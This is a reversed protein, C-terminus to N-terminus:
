EWNEVKNFNSYVDAAYKGIGIADAEDDTVTVDYNNKVILQMSRKQDVRSRGKVGCHHRWTNTPCVQYPIKEWFLTEMLIGQLRALTQFVTIGMNRGSSSEQFQIGELAVLDPQWNRLTQILWTKIASDRAIEDSLSTTFTGWQVLKNNDFISFGTVKTAQDIALIRYTGKKKPIIQKTIDNFRNDKCIPCSFKTRLRGWTSYIKHGENCQFEMETKLNHYETSLLKWGNSEVEKKIEEINIKSM